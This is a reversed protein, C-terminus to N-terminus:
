RWSGGNRLPILVQPAQMTAAPARRTAYDVGTLAFLLAWTALATSAVLRVLTSARRMRMYLGVVLATKALAIGLGVLLNGIGLPVYAAACSTLMLAILAVWAALMPLVGPPWRDPRTGAPAPTPAPAAATM